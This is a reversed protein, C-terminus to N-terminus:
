INPIGSLDSTRYGNEYCNSLKDRLSRDIDSVSLFGDKELKHLAKLYNVLQVSEVPHAGIACEAALVIGSVGLELLTYIDSIESRSPLSATM